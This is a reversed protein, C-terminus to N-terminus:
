KHVKKLVFYACGFNCYEHLYDQLTSIKTDYTAKQNRDDFFGQLRLQNYGWDGVIYDYRSLVDIFRGRFAEENFAEREDKLVEYCINNICVM